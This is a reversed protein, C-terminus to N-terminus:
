RIGEGCFGEVLYSWDCYGDRVTLQFEARKRYSKM